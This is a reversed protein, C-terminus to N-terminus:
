LCVSSACLLYSAIFIIDSLIAPKQVLNHEFLQKNTYTQSIFLDRFDRFCSMEKRSM